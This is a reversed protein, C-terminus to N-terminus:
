EKLGVPSLNWTQQLQQVDLSPSSLEASCSNGASATSIITMLMMHNDNINILLLTRFKHIYIRKYIYVYM